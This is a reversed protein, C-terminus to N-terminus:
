SCIAVLQRSRQSLGDDQYDVKTFIEEMLGEPLM